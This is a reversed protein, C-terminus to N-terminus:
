IQPMIAATFVLVRAVFMGRRRYLYGLRAGTILMMAYSVTYGPWSSGCDPGPRM